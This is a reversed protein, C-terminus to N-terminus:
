VTPGPGYANTAEDSPRTLWWIMLVLLVLQALGYAIMGVVGLLTASGRLADPDAGHSEAYGFAFIGFFLSILFLVSIGMPVLLYWGPRGSDHMRRWGAGLAPLFMALQFVSTLLTNTQGTEPDSGFLLADIIALLISGSFVFLAFWWYEPRSARGSFTAYKGLCIKTAEVINM